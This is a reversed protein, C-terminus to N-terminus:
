RFCRRCVAAYRYTGDDPVEPSMSKPVVAGTQDTVQTHTANGGCVECVAQKNILVEPSLEILKAVTPMLRGAHDTNLGALIVEAGATLWERVTQAAFEDFMHVEDVAYVDSLPAARLESLSEAEAELGLRSAITDTRVDRKPKIYTVKKGAIRHPEARLILEASKACKMPGIILTMM